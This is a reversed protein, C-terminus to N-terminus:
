LAGAAGFANRLHKPLGIGPAVVIVDFRLKMGAAGPYRMLWAEAAHAIRARSKTGVAELGSENEARAKVEVFVLTRRRKAVLDIEGIPGRFRRALIGYGKLRLYWAAIREARRGRREAAQREPSAVSRAM